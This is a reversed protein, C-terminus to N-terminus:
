NGLNAIVLAAWQDVLADCRIRRQSIEDPTLFQGDILASKNKAHLELEKLRAEVFAKQDETPNTELIQKYFGVISEVLVLESEKRKFEKQFDAARKLFRQSDAALRSIEVVIVEGDAKRLTVKEGDSSVLAADVKFKGSSDTWIRLDDQLWLAVSFFLIWCM